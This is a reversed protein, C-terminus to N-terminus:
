SKQLRKLNPALGSPRVHGDEPVQKGPQHILFGVNSNRPPSPCNEDYELWSSM